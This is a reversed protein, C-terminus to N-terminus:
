KAEKSIKKKTGLNKRASVAVKKPKVEPSKPLSVELGGDEFNAEIKNADVTSPLPISRYFSGYSRKYRYYDAEKV